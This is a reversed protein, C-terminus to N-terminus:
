YYSFLCLIKIEALRFVTYLKANRFNVRKIRVGNLISLTLPCM